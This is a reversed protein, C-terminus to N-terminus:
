ELARRFATWAQKVKDDEKESALQRAEQPLEDARTALVEPDLDLAEAFQKILHDSSPVRRGHEIDSLYQQSIPEGNEKRIMGALDKQSIMKAKRARQIVKGFTVM